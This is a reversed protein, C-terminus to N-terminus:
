QKQARVAKLGFVESVLYTLMYRTEGRLEKLDLLPWRQMLTNM